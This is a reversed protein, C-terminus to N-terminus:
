FGPRCTTPGSPGPCPVRMVTHSGLFSADEHALRHPDQDSVIMRDEPLTQALDEFLGVAQDDDALAPSPSSVSRAM